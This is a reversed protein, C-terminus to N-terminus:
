LQYEMTPIIHHVIGSARDIVLHGSQDFSGTADVKRVRLDGSIDFYNTPTITRVGLYGENTQYISGAEGTGNDSKVFFNSDVAGLAGAPGTAGQPGEAGREGIIGVKWYDGSNSGYYDTVSITLTTGAYYTAEGQDYEQPTYGTGCLKLHTGM